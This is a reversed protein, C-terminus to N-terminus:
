RDLQPQARRENQEVFARVTERLDILKGHFFHTTEPFVVFEPGPELSDLWQVSEDIPVLEDDEGQVILWPCEPQALLKGGLRFAAPAVSVLGAVEAEIAARISMAAGFSFGALWVPLVSFRKRMFTIGALVDQVEGDGDDFSGESSGVGRFNFRLVAFGCGLFSRALTHAVKNQMTGGHMPHPHCVVAAAVPEGDSPTDLLCELDGAPGEFTLKESRPSKRM